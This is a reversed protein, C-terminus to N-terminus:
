LLLCPPLEVLYNVLKGGGGWFLFVFCFFVFLLLLVFGFVFLFCSPEKNADRIIRSLSFAIVSPLILVDGNILIAVVCGPGCVIVM